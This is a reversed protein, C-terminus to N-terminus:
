TPAKTKQKSKIILIGIVVKKQKKQNSCNVDARHEAKLEAKRCAKQSWNRHYGTNLITTTIQM